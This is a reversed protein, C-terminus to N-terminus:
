KLRGCDARSLCSCVVLFWVEAYLSVSLLHAIWKIHNFYLVLSFHMPNWAKNARFQQRSHSQGITKIELSLLIDSLM